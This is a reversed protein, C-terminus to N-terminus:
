KRVVIRKKNHNLLKQMNAKILNFTGKIGQIVYNNNNLAAIM